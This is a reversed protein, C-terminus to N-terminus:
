SVKTPNEVAEEVFVEWSQFLDNRIGDSCFVLQWEEGLCHPLNM